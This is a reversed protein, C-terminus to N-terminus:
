NGAPHLLYGRQRELAAFDGDPSHDLQAHGDAFAYTKYYGGDPSRRPNKERLLITASPNALQNLQGGSVLEWDTEALGSSYQKLQALKTPLQNQHDAAYMICSLAWQKSQNLHAINEQRFAEMAAPTMPPRAPGHHGYHQVLVVTGTTALILVAGTIVATKAKTWAMLKLAGKVLTLTSVGAAAGKTLALTSITTTLGAPAAQVSHASVAGAIATASLTVGRKLFFKRLKDLARSLRKHTAAENLKLTAAIERATKNEFFRLVLANRDAEGLRGMAEDLWPAVQVWAAAPENLTSQMYAEQEREQRHIERKVFNAATLRATQYLWGSLVVCPGLRGAKRALIIFVAQTIEQAHHANGTARLATSHVLPLHRAVLAAFAAESANRTYAALLAHDDPEIM